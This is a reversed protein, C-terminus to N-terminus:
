ETNVVTTKEIPLELALCVLYPDGDGSIYDVLSSVAGTDEEAKVELLQIKM